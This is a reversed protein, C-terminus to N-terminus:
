PDTVPGFRQLDGAGVAGARLVRWPSRTVDLLTSLPGPVLPGADLLLDLGQLERAVREPDGTPPRGSPNASTAPLAGGAARALAAALPPRVLRLGITGGGGRLAAPVGPAATLVLTLGEPWAAVLARAAEPVRAAWRPLADRDAIALLIAKAAGRGKLAFLRAVAEPDGPDCALAYHHEVPYAVVGGARIVRVAEALAEPAPDRPDVRIRRVPRAPM